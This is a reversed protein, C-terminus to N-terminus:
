PGISPPNKLHEAFAKKYPCTGILIEEIAKDVNYETVKLEIEKDILLWCAGTAKSQLGVSGANVIRKNAVLRDFQIHTHGCVIIDEKTNKIIEFVESDKTDFRIAEEDSRPSGHVFLINGIGKVAISQREDLKKLFQLHEETLQDACWTNLEAVFGDCGEQPGYRYAVERDANGMIFLFKDKFEMLTDMVERPQPGWVLDGGVVVAHVNERRLENLVAELAYNNGHIDYLAAMKM